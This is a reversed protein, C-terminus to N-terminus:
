SCANGSRMEKGPLFDHNGAVVCLVPFPALRPLDAGGRLQPGVTLLSLDDLLERSIRRAGIGDILINASLIFQQCLLPLLKKLDNAIIGKTEMSKFRSLGSQSTYFEKQSFGLLLRYYGILRPNKELVCPVAYVLEGRIGHTALTTLYANSVYDHLQSDIISIDMDAITNYLADQLYKSRIDNLASSFAIQMKPFPVKISENM